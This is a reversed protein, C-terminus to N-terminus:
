NQLTAAQWFTGSCIALWTYLAEKDNKNRKGKRHLMPWLHRLKIVPQRSGTSGTLLTYWSFFLHEYGSTSVTM